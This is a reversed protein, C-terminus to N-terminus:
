HSKEVGAFTQFTLLVNGKQKKLPVEDSSDDRQIESSAATGERRGDIENQWEELMVFMANGKRKSLSGEESSIDNQLESSKVTVGNTTIDLEGLRKCENGSELRTM